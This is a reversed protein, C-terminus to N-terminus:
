SEDPVKRVYKKWMDIWEDKELMWVVMLYGASLLSGKLLLLALLSQAKFFYSSAMLGLGVLAALIPTFLIKRMDLDVEKHVQRYVVAIGVASSVAVCIAAGEKGWFHVMPFCTIVMWGGQWILADMAVKPRGVAALLGGALDYFPRLLMMLAMWRLVAVMPLWREGILVITGERACFVMGLGIWLSIRFVASLVKQYAQSLARRDHQLRSYTPFATSAIVHAVQTTPLNAWNLAKSYFGLDTNGKLTGLTFSDFQQSLSQASMGMFWRWYPGYSLFWNKIKKDYGWGIAFPCAMLNGALGVVIGSTTGAVLSWPGWGLWATFVMLSSAVLCSALAILAIERYMLMKQLIASPTLTFMTLGGFLMMVIFILGVTKGYIRAIVWAGPISLLLIAGYIVLNLIRHTSYHAAEPKPQHVLAEDFGLMQFRAALFVFVGAMAYQGFAEPAVLRATIISAVATVAFRIYNVSAVWLTGSVAKKAIDRSL